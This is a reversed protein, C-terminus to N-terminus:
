AFGDKGLIKMPSGFPTWTISLTLVMHNHFPKLFILALSRALITAPESVWKFIVIDYFFASKRSGVLLECDRAGHRPLVQICM